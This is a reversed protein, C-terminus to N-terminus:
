DGGKVAKGFRLQRAFRARTLRLFAMVEPATEYSRRYCHIATDLFGLKRYHHGTIKWRHALAKQRQMQISSTGAPFQSVFEDYNEAWRLRSDHFKRSLQQEEGLGNGGPRYIVPNGPLHLWNGLRTLRMFVYSDQGSRIHLPFPGAELLASTRFLTCSILAGGNKIMWLVPDASLEALSNLRSSGGSQYLRDSSVAVAHPCANLKGLSRELFDEPWLDDSDPIALFPFGALRAIGGNRANSVGAHHLALLEVDLEPHSAIWKGVSARTDDESGDDVVVVKTPKITQRSVSDLADLVLRPRNYVPIVVGIACASINTESHSM